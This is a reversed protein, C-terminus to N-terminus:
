AKEGKKKEIHGNRALIYRPEVALMAGRSAYVRSDVIASNRGFTPAAKVIVTSERPSGLHRSVAELLEERSPQGGEYDVRLRLERRELLRNEREAIISINKVALGRM